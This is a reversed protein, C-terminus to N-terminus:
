ESRSGPPLGTDDPLQFCAMEEGNRVFLRGHAIVPHNWTKGSIAPVKAVEVRRQPDAKVLAVEGTESLVLLLGQEALLLVQGNGYGREKWKRKGDALGVCTFFHNDFGYLHDNHIVLDNYYPSIAKSTAPWVEGVKWQDGAHGVTLRRTGAGFPGGLVFDAEGVLAPQTVRNMGNELAWDYQWVVKGTAPDYAVLGADTVVAAADVGGLKIPHASSYSLKGGPATWAIAGDTAQYAIVGKGEAGAFVIVVGHTVLPSSAFGWTPVEAGTDKVVDRTWIRQGTAADLCNVLGRGGMTYLKGDHFTPTARPGPGAIPETFRAADAHAWLEAGTDADYCVVVENDQRQEQTFLRNGVVAFSSWGPGVRRRWVEKPPSKAWDTGIRTGTLKGDRAAGRFAPWDGPQLELPKAAVAPAPKAAPKVAAEAIFKDEATPLWRPSMAANFQGDMGDLRILAFAAATLGCAVVIGARRVPWNLMPTLLLWGVWATVLTPLVYFMPGMERFTPHYFAMAAAVVVAVGLLVLLRDKWAVGSALLWWLVLGAGAIVPGFMRVMFLNMDPEEVLSPAAICAWQALLLVVAPWLRLRRAPSTPGNM